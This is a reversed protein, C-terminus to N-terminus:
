PTGRSEHPPTITTPADAHRTQERATPNMDALLEQVRPDVPALRELLARMTVVVRMAERMREVAETLQSNVLDHITDLKKNSEAQMERLKKASIMDQLVNFATVLMFMVIAIIMAAASDM